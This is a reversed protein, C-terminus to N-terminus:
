FLRGQIGRACKANLWVVETRPHKLNTNAKRAIREWGPFLEEDYLRSPYGSIVVAGKVAHLVKALHHHGEEDLEHTYVGPSRSRTEALYPPDVYHLTEPGDFRKIIEIAPKSEIMVGRLRDVVAWISKPWARWDSGPSSGAKSNIRFGTANKRNCSDSAFGQYSKVILRRAEEIPDHTKKQYSAEFEVRSFTTLFVREILDKATKPDRLVRFLNVVAQDLDNYIESHVRPKKLLVSAAGGFTETYIRHEPFFQIVWDAIMWKGGHWRLVPRRIRPTMAARRAM